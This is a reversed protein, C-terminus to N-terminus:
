PVDKMEFAAIVAILGVVNRSPYEPLPPPIGIPGMPPDRDAVLSAM